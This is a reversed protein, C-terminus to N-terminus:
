PASDVFESTVISGLARVQSEELEVHAFCLTYVSLGQGVALYAQMYGMAISLVVDLLEQLYM